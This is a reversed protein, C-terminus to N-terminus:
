NKRSRNKGGHGRWTRSLEKYRGGEPPCTNSVLIRGQLAAGCFQELSRQWASEESAPIKKRTDPFARMGALRPHAVTIRPSPPCSTPAAIRSNQAPRCGLM